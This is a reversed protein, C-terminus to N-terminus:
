DESSKSQWGFTGEFKTFTGTSNTSSYGSRSQRRHSQSLAAQKQQRKFDGTNYPLYNRPIKSTLFHLLTYNSVSKVKNKLGPKM